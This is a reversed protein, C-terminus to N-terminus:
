KLNQIFININFREDDDHKSALSGNLPQKLAEQVIPNTSESLLQRAKECSEKVAQIREEPFLEEPDQFTEMMEESANNTDANSDTNQQTSQDELQSNEHSNETSNAETQLNEQFNTDSHENQHINQDHETENQQYSGEQSAHENLGGNQDNVGDAESTEQINSVPKNVNSEIGEINESEAM